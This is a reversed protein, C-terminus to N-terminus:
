FTDFIFLSLSLILSLSPCYLPFLLNLLFSVLFLICAMAGVCILSKIVSRVIAAYKQLLGLDSTM